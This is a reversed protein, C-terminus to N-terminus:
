KSDSGIAAKLQVYIIRASISLQDINSPIANATKSAFSVKNDSYNSVRKHIAQLRRYLGMRSSQKTIWLRLGPKSNLFALVKLVFSRALKNVILIM